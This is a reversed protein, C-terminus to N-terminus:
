TSSSIASSNMRRKTSNVPLSVIPSPRALGSTSRPGMIKAGTLRAWVATDFSHDFHSHGSLIYDIGMKGLVDYVRRVGATDPLVPEMILTEPKRLDIREPRPIRTIWGDLLICVDGTEILWNTNSMWTLYVEYESTSSEPIQAFAFVNIFVILLFITGKRLASM